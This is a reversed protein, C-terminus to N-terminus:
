EHTTTRETLYYHAEIRQKKHDVYVRDLRATYEGPPIGNTAEPIRTTATPYFVQSIPPNPTEDLERIRGKYHTITVMKMKM